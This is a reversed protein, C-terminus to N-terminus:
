KSLSQIGNRKSSVWRLVLLRKATAIRRAEYGEDHIGRRVKDLAQRFSRNALGLGEYENTVMMAATNWAAAKEEKTVVLEGRRTLFDYDYATVYEVAVRESLEDGSVDMALLRTIRDSEWSATNWNVARGREEDVSLADIERRRIEKVLEARYLEYGRLISGLAILTFEGYYARISDTDLGPLQGAAALRFAERIELVGFHGFRSMVFEVAEDFVESLTNRAGCYIKACHELEGGLAAVIGVEGDPEKSSVRISREIGRVVAGVVQRDYGRSVVANLLEPLELM